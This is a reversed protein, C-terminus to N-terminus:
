MRLLTNPPDRLLPGADVHQEIALYIWKNAESNAIVSHDLKFGTSLIEEVHAVANILAPEDGDQRLEIWRAVPGAYHYGNNDSTPLNDEELGQVCNINWDEDFAVVASTGVKSSDINFGTSPSLTAFAIVCQPQFGPDTYSKSSVTSPTDLTGVYAHPGGLKVSLTGLHVSDISDTNDFDFGSSSFNEAQFRSDYTSESNVTVIGYSENIAMALNMQTEPDDMWACIARQIATGTTGPNLAFGYSMRKDHRKATDASYPTIQATSMIVFDPEFGVSVSVTSQSTGTDQDIAKCQCDDGAFLVAAIFKNVAPATDVNLEVGNRLWRVFSIDSELNGGGEYLRLVDGTGATCKCNATGSQDTSTQTKYWHNTGDTAGISSCYDGIKADLADAYSAFFFAGKPTAGGLRAYLAINGTTTGISCFTTRAKTYRSDITEGTMEHPGPDCTTGSRANGLIDTAPVDSDSSPGIGTTPADNQAHDVLFFSQYAKALGTGSSVSEIIYHDTGGATSDTFTASDTNTAGGDPLTADDGWNYGTESDVTISGTTSYCNGSGGYVACNTVKLNFTSSQQQRAEIGVGAGQFMCNMFTMTGTASGSTTLKMCSGATETSAIISNEMLFSGGGTTNNIDVDLSDDPIDHIFMRRFICGVAQVQCEDSATNEGDSFIELGEVIVNDVEINIIQGNVISYICVGGANPVGQHEQSFDAAKITINNTPTTVWADTSLMELRGLNADGDNYLLAVEPESLTGARDNNWAQLTLYDRGSSTGDARRGITKTITM